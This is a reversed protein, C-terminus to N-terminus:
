KSEGTVSDTGPKAESMAAPQIQIRASHANLATCLEEASTQIISNLDLARRIKDTIQYLQAQRQVQTRIQGVLRVSAIISGLTNGLTALIEADNEDFARVDKSEINLIGSLEDRYTIPICIESKIQPDIPIFRPDNTTDEVRITKKTSAAEGVIGEGPKVKITSLDTSEYGQSAAISLIGESDPTFVMVQARPLASSLGEVVIKLAEPIDRAASANSTILYLSRQRNLYDQLKTAQTANSLAVALQDTLVQLQNIDEDMFGSVRKSEFDMIGLVDSGVKMPIYLASQSEPLFKDRLYERDNRANPFLKRERDTFVKGFSTDALRVQYEEEKHQQALDRSGERYVAFEKLPDILYAATHYLDFRQNILNTTTSLILQVDTTSVASKLIESFTQLKDLRLDAVKVANRYQTDDWAIGMLGSVKGSDDFIPIKNQTYYISTGDSQEIRSTLGLKQTGTSIIELDDKYSQVGEQESLLNLDSKGLIADENDASFRKIVSNNVRTYKGNQDKLYVQFPAHQFIADTVRKQSQFNTTVSSLNDKQQLNILAASIFPILNNFYNIDVQEFRDEHEFDQIALVGVMKQEVIMPLGLYSQPLNSHEIIELKQLLQAAQRNWTLFRQNRIIYSNVDTGVDMPRRQMELLREYYYPFSIRTNDASLMAVAFGMDSSFYKQVQKHLEKCFGPLTSEQAIIRSLSNIFDQSNKQRELSGSVLIRDMSKSAQDCLDTLPALNDVIISNPDKSGVLILEFPKESAILCYMAAAKCGRRDLFTLLDTYPSPFRLNTFLTPGIDTKKLLEPPTPLKLGQFASDSVNENPDASALYTLYNEDVSFLFTVFGTQSVVNQMQSNIDELDRAVIMQQSFKTLDNM